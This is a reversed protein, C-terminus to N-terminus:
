ANDILVSRHDDDGLQEPMERHDCRGELHEARHLPEDPILQAL